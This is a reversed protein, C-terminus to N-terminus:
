CLEQVLKKVCFFGLDQVLKKVRCCIYIHASDLSPGLKRRKDKKTKWLRRREAPLILNTLLMQLFFVVFNVRKKLWFKTWNHQAVYKSWWGKQCKQGKKMKLFISFGSYVYNIINEAFDANKLSVGWLNPVSNTFVVASVSKQKTRKNRCKQKKPTKATDPKKPTKKPSSHFVFFSLNWFLVVFFSLLGCSAFWLIM